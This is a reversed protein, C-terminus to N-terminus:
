FSAVMMTIVYFKQFTRIKDPADFIIRGITRISPCKIGKEACFSQLHVYIKEKGLNPHEERVRSIEKIVIIPWKRTRVKHPRRSKELPRKPQKNEM